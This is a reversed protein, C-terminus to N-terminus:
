LKGVVLFVVAQIRCRRHAVFSPRQFDEHSLRGYRRHCYAHKFVERLLHFLLDLVLLHQTVQRRVHDSIQVFVIKRSDDSLDVHRERMRLSRYDVSIVRLVQILM